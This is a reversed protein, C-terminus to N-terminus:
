LVPASVPLSPYWEPLLFEMYLYFDLGFLGINRYWVTIASPETVSMLMYGLNNLGCGLGMLLIFWCIRGVERERVFFSIALLFSITAFIAMIINMGLAMGSM